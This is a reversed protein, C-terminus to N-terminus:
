APLPRNRGSKSGAQLRGRPATHVIQRTGLSLVPGPDREPETVLRGGALLVRGIARSPHNQGEVAQHAVSVNRNFAHPPAADMPQQGHLVGVAAPAAGPSHIRGDLLVASATCARASAM